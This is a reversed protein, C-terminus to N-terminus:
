SAAPDNPATLRNSPVDKAHGINLALFELLQYAKGIFVDDRPTPTLATVASAAAVVGSAVSMWSPIQDFIQTLTGM